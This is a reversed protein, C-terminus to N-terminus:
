PREEDSQVADGEATDAAAAPDAILESGLNPLEANESLIQADESRRLEQYIRQRLLLDREPAVAQGQAAIPAGAAAEDAQSQKAASEDAQLRRAASEDARLLRAALEDARRQVETTALPPASLEPDEVAKAVAQVDSPPPAAAPEFTDGVAVSSPAATSDGAFPLQTPRPQTGPNVGTVALDDAAM